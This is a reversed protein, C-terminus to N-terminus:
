LQSTDSTRHPWDLGIFLSRVKTTRPGLEADSDHLDELLLRHRTVSLQEWRLSVNATSFAAQMGQRLRLDLTRTRIFRNRFLSLRYPNYSVNELTRRRAVMALEKVNAANCM